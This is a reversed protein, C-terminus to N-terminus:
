GEKKREVKKTGGGAVKESDHFEGKVRREGRDNSEEKNTKGRRQPRM